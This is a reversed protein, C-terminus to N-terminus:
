TIMALVVSSWQRRICISRFNNSFNRITIVYGTFCYCRLSVTATLGIPTMERFNVKLLFYFPKVNLNSEEGIGDVGKRDWYLNQHFSQPLFAVFRVENM